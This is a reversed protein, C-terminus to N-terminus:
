ISPSKIPNLYHPLYHLIQIKQTYFKTTDLTNKGTEQKLYHKLGFHKMINLSCHKVFVRSDGPLFMIDYVIKKIFFKLNIMITTSKLFSNMPMLVHFELLKIYNYVLLHLVEQLKSKEM